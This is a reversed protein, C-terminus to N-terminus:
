ASRLEAAMAATHGNQAVGAVTPKVAMAAQMALMDNRRVLLRKGPRFAPLKGTRIWYRVAWITTRMESAVEEVLLFEETNSHTNM